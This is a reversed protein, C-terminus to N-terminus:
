KFLLPTFQLMYKRWNSWIHGRTSEVYKYPFNLSDLRKRYATMSAYLFDSSGIGIWYLKFGKNKQATLKENINSYAPISKDLQDIGTGPSFLGVYDFLDPHNASIILSHFGGMSLGAVARQSKLAKTRYRDDVFKVIEDFSQEYDGRRFNPLYQSMVPRYNLNEKTEGPAAQKSPNGNPMVVIMPTIKKDAILNDIIRATEGLSIWAEEDGGSGHLLYLVPYHDKSTEYGPPTYITLRRDKKYETSRYWTRIVTGHPVDKVTYNDGDGGGTIVVSYLNGVDRISFANLPDLMQVSDIRFTYLYLDSPLSPTTFNWLGGTDKAMQGVGGNAEWDGKITVIKALPAYVKFTISNDGNVQPSVINGQRFGVNQQAFTAHSVMMAILLSIFRNKMNIFREKNFFTILSFNLLSTIKGPVSFAPFRFGALM